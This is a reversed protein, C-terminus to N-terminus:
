DFNLTALSSQMTIVTLTLLLPNLLVTACFWTKSQALRLIKCRGDDASTWTANWSLRPPCNNPDYRGDARSRSYQQSILTHHALTCTSPIASSCSLLKLRIWRLPGRVTSAIRLVRWCLNTSPCHKTLKYSTIYSPWHTSNTPRWGSLIFLWNTYYLQKDTQNTSISLTSKFIVSLEMKFADRSHRVQRTLRERGSM